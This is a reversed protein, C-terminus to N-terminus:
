EDVGRKNKNPVRLEDYCIEKTNYLQGVKTADFIKKIKPSFPKASHLCIKHPKKCRDINCPTNDMHYKFPQFIYDTHIRMRLHINNFRQTDYFFDIDLKRLESCFGDIFLVEKTSSGLSNLIKQFETAMYICDAYKKPSKRLNDIFAQVGIVEESFTTKFNSYIKQGEMHALYAVGTMSCTKGNGRICTESVDSITGVFACIM